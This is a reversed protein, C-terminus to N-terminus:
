HRGSARTKGPGRTSRPNRLKRECHLCTAAAQNRKTSGFYTALRKVTHALKTPAESASKYTWSSKKSTNQRLVPKLVECLSAPLNAHGSCSRAPRAVSCRPDRGDQLFLSHMKQQLTHTMHFKRAYM